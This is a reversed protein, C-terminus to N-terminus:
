SGFREFFASPTLIPHVDALKLLEKDGTVLYDAKSALLAALVMDDNPDGPVKAVVGWTDVMTAKLRISDVLHTLEWDKWQIYKTVTPYQLVRQLEEVMAESSVWEYAGSM